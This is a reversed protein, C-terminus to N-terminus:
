IPQAAEGAARRPADRLARLYRFSVVALIAQLIPMLSDLDVGQEFPDAAIVWPHSAGTYIHYNANMLIAVVGAMVITSLVMRRGLTSLQTWRGAWLLAAVILSAGLFLEGIVVIAAVVQANPIILGDLFAKYWSPVSRSRFVLDEQLAYVFGGRLLKSLGSVLWEYGLFFQVALLGLLAARCEDAFTSGSSHDPRRM